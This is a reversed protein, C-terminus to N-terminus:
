PTGGTVPMFAIIGPPEDSITIDHSAVTTFTPPVTGVPADPSVAPTFTIEGATGTYNELLLDNVDVQADNANSLATSTLVMSFRYISILTTMMIGLILLSVIAEMISEGCRKRLTMKVKIMFDSLYKM